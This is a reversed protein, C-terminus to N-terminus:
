YEDNTWEWVNGSMDYIGLENPKKQGVPHTKGGSNSYFWAVENPNDSGAYKYGKSDQGGRAAYEWEAETPLRWGDAGPVNEVNDGDIKYAPTSGDQESKWNAYAVADYWSVNIVPRMGRGWGEDNPKTRGTANCFKDYEDFTIPYKGIVFDSVRAQQKRDGEGMELTGGKVAVTNM